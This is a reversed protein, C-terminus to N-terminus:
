YVDCINGTLACILSGLLMPKLQALKKTTPSTSTYLNAFVSMHADLSGLLPLDHQLVALRNDRGKLTGLAVPDEGGGVAEEVPEGIEARLDSQELQEVKKGVGAGAGGDGVREKAVHQHVLLKQADRGERLHSTHQECAGRYEPPQAEVPALGLLAEIGGLPSFREVLLRQRVKKGADIAVRQPVEL